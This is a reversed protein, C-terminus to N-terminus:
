IIGILRFIPANSLCSSDIGEGDHIYINCYDVTASALAKTLSAFPASVTGANLDNGNVSDVHYDPM